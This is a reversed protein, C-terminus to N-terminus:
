CFLPSYDGGQYEDLNFATPECGAAILCNCEYRMETALVTRFTVQPLTSTWDKGSWEMRRVFRKGTGVPFFDVQGLKTKFQM